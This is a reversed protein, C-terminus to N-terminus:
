LKDQGMKIAETHKIIDEIMKQYKAKVEKEKQDLSRLEEEKQLYM